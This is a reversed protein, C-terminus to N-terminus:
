AQRLLSAADLPDIPNFWAGSGIEGAAVYRMTRPSRLLGVIEIHVHATPWDGGDVPRQHVWLMYPMPEDFLRDLRTLVDVMASALDDREDPGLSPLDPQHTVPSLVVEFPYRPAEPVTARWTGHTAVVLADVPRPCLWCETSALELRQAPPVEDFSYIQGHPHSITAGVVGGRNEFPMVAAIDARQALAVTREAWLDIVKRVAAPGLSGLSADHEPSFLVVECRDDPM